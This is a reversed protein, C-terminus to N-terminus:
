TRFTSNLLFLSVGRRLSVVNHLECPRASLLADATFGDQAIVPFYKGLEEGSRSPAPAVPAKQAKNHNACGCMCERADNTAEATGCKCEATGCCTRQTSPATENKAEAKAALAAAAAAHKECSWGVSCLVLLSLLIAFNRMM